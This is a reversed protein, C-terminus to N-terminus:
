SFRVSALPAIFKERYFGCDFLINKGGGKILWVYM